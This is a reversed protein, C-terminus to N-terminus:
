EAAQALLSVFKTDVPRLVFYSAENKVRWLPMSAKVVGAAAESEDFMLTSILMEAKSTDVSQVVAVTGYTQPPAFSVIVDGPRITNVPQASKQLPQFSIALQRLWKERQLTPKVPAPEAPNSNPQQFSM